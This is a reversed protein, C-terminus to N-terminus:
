RLLLVRWLKRGYKATFRREFGYSVFLGNINEIYCVWLRLGGQANFNRAVSVVCCNFIGKFGNLCLYAYFHSSLSKCMGVVMFDVKWLFAKLPMKDKLQMRRSSFHLSRLLFLAFPRIIGKGM